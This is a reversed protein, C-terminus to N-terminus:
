ELFYIDPKDVVGSDQMKERLDASAAFERVKQLDDAEFLGIVENRDDANRFLHLEKLGAKQRAPLHADYVPKWKAFDAVKHRVLFFPMKKKRTPPKQEPTLAEM